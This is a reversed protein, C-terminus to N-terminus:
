KVTVVYDHAFCSTDKTFVQISFALLGSKKDYGAMTNAVSLSDSSTCPGDKAPLALKIPAIAKGGRTGTITVTRKDIALVLAADESALDTTYRTADQKGGKSAVRGMRKYSGADLVKTLKAVDAKARAVDTAPPVVGIRQLVKGDTGFVVLSTRSAKDDGPAHSYIAVHKGDASIAPCRM